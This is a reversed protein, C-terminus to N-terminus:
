ASVPYNCKKHLLLAKRGQKNRYRKKSKGRSVKGSDATGSIKSEKQNCSKRPRSKCGSENVSKSDVFLGNYKRKMSRKVQNQSCSSSDSNSALKVSATRIYCFHHSGGGGDHLEDGSNVVKQITAKSKKKNRFNRKKKSKEQASHKEKNCKSTFEQTGNVKLSNIKVHNKLTNQSFGAVVWGLKTRTAFPAGEQSSNIIEWPEVAQPVNNGIILGVEVDYEPINICQLHPWKKVDETRIMDEKNVPIKDLTYIPPLCVFNKEQPDCIEIGSVISSKIEM